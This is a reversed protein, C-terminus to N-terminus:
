NSIDIDNIINILISNIDRIIIVLFLWYISPSYMSLYDYARAEGFFYFCISVFM